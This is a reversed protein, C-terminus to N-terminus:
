AASPEPMATTGEQSPPELEIDSTPALTEKPKENKNAIFGSAGKDKARRLTYGYNGLPIEWNLPYEWEDPARFRFPM